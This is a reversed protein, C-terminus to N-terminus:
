ESIGCASRVHWSHTVVCHTPIGLCTPLVAGVRLFSVVVLHILLKALLVKIFASCVFEELNVTQM